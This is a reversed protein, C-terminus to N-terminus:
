NFAMNSAQKKLKRFCKKHFKKGSFTKIGHLEPEIKYGCQACKIFDGEPGATEQIEEKEESSDKKIGFLKKLFNM